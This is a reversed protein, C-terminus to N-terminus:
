SPVSRLSLAIQEEAGETTLATRDCTELAELAAWSVISDPPQHSAYYLFYIDERQDYRAFVWLWETASLPYTAYGNMAALLRLGYM